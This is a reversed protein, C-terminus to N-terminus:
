QKDSSAEDEISSSESEDSKESSSKGLDEDRIETLASAILGAPVAIVGLGCMLILFTFIKGGITIPYVDGYGVTTLTAVAWWLSDPISSFSEPQAEHEFYYIGVSALFLLIATAVVFLEAEQQSARLARGLRFMADAYRTLKVVRFIRLIRVARVALVENGLPLFFLFFPAIALVDVIGYFSFIYEKKKPSTLIRLAYETVFILTIVTEAIHLWYRAEPSLTPVTEVAIMVLSGIIIVIIVSDFIRGSVTSSDQVVSRLLEFVRNNKRM